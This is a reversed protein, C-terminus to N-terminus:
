RPEPSEGQPPGPIFQVSFRQTGVMINGIEAGECVLQQISLYGNRIPFRLGTMLGALGRVSLQAITEALGEELYRLIASRWYASANLRARFQRLYRFRPRLFSHVMEHIRALDQEAASGATSYSADGYWWTEGHGAPLSPDGTLTPKRWLQGAQTDAEVNVLGASKVRTVEALTPGRTIQLQKASRRLLIAMVATIGATIVASAFAQGASDLDAEGQARIATTGFFVLDRVVGEISWGIFFAGLLLLGVDVVEGVGFVHSGAWIVVTATLLALNEVSLLADLQAALAAPMYKKSRVISERVKDSASWASVAVSM